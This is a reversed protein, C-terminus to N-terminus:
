FVASEIQMNGIECKAGCCKKFINIWNVSIYTELWVAKRIYLTDARAHIKPRRANAYKRTCLPARRNDFQVIHSHVWRRLVFVFIFTYYKFSSIVEPSAVKTAVLRYVYTCIHHAHTTSCFSVNMDNQTTCITYLYLLKRSKYNYPQQHRM